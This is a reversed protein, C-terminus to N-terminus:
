GAENRTFLGFVFCVGARARGRRGTTLPVGMGNVHVMKELGDGGRAQTNSKFKVLM